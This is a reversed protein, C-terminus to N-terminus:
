PEDRRIPLVAHVRFRGDRSPGAQLRGGLATVRERMGELGHGGESPARRQQPMGNVVEIEVGDERYALRLTVRQGDGYRLANTLAEQLVRYASLSVTSPLGPREGEIAVDVEVGAEELSQVLADIGELGTMPAVPASEVPERLVGVLARMEDLTLHSVRRITEFAEQVRDPDRERLHAAVGAQVNILSINHAVVDHLERAIQLREESVRRLAHEERSREAEIARREAEEVLARRSRTADGLLVAGLMSMLMATQIPDVGPRGGSVLAAGLLAAAGLAFTWAQLRPVESQAVVSYLAVLVMPLMALQRPDAVWYPAASLVVVGLTVLPWRSRVAGSGAAIALLAVHWWPTIVADPGPRPELVQFLGVAFLAVALTADFAWPPV